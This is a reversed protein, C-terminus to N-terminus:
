PTTTSSGLEGTLGDAPIVNSSTTFGSGRTIRRMQAYDLHIQDISDRILFCDQELNLGQLPDKLDKVHQEFAIMWYAFVATWPISWPGVSGLSLFSFAATWIQVM